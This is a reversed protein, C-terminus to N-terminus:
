ILIAETQIVKQTKAKEMKQWDTLGKVLWAPTINNMERQQKGNVWGMTRKLGRYELPLKTMKLTGKIKIM